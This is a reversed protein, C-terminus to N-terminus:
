IEVIEIVGIGILRKIIDKHIDDRFTPCDKEILRYLRKLESKCSYSLACAAAGKTAWVTKGTRTRMFEGCIKIRYCKRPDTTYNKLYNIAIDIYKNSLNVM